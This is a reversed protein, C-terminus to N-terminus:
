PIKGQFREFEQGLIRYQCNPCQCGTVRSQQFGDQDEIENSANVPFYFGCKPCNGAIHHGLLTTAMSGTPIVFAEAVFTKLLLVLVIVFVVTEVIERISDKPGHHTQEETGTVAIPETRPAPGPQINTSSVRNTPIRIHEEDAM